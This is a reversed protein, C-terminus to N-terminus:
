CFVYFIVTPRQLSLLPCNKSTPIQKRTWSRNLKLGVHESWTNTTRSHAQTREHRNHATVIHYIRYMHCNIMAADSSVSCMCMCACVCVQTCLCVCVRAVSTLMVLGSTHTQKINWSKDLHSLAPFSWSILCSSLHPFYPPFFFFFSFFFFSMYAEQHLQSRSFYLIFLSFIFCSYLWWDAIQQVHSSCRHMHTHPLFVCLFFFILSNQDSM